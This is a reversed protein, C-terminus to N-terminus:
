AHSPRHTLAIAQPLGPFTKLRTSAKIDHCLQPTSLNSDQAQPLFQQVFEASQASRRLIDAQPLARQTATHKRDIRGFGNDNMDRFVKQDIAAIDNELVASQAETRIRIDAVPFSGPEFVILRCEGPAVLACGLDPANKFGGLRQRGLQSLLQAVSKLAAQPKVVHGIFRNLMLKQRRATDVVM